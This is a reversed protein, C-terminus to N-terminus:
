EEVGDMFAHEYRVLYKYQKKYLRYKRLLRGGPGRWKGRMLLGQVKRLWLMEKESLM